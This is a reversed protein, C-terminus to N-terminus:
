AYSRFMSPDILYKLRALLPMEESMELMRNKTNHSGMAYGGGGLVAGGGGYGMMKAAEPHEGLWNRATSTAAEGAEDTANGYGPTAKAGATGGATQQAKNMAQRQQHAYRGTRYSGRHGFRRVADGANQLVEGGGRAVNSMTNRFGTGGQIRPGARNVINDGLGTVAKGARQIGRAGTQLGKAATGAVGRLFTFKGAEKAMQYELIDGAINLAQSHSLKVHSSKKENGTLRVGRNFMRPDYVGAQKATQYEAIFAAANLAQTHKM